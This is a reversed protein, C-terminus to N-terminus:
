FGLESLIPKPYAIEELGEEEVVELDLITKTGWDLFPSIPM